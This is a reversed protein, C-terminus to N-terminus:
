HVVTWDRSVLFSGCKPCFIIFGFFIPITRTFREGCSHCVYHANQGPGPPIVRNLLDPFGGKGPIMM